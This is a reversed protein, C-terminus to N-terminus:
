TPIKTSKAFPKTAVAMLKIPYTARLKEQMASASLIDQINYKLALRKSGSILRMSMFPKRRWGLKM